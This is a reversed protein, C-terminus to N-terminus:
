TKGKLPPGTKSIWLIKLVNKESGSSPQGTHMFDAESSANFMM